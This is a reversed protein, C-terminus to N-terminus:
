TWVSTTSPLFGHLPSLPDILRFHWRDPGVFDTVELRLVDVMIVEQEALRAPSCGPPLPRNTAVPGGDPTASKAPADFFVVNIRPV